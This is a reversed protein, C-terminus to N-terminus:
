LTESYEMKQYNFTVEERDSQLAMSKISANTLKLTMYTVEKGKVTHCFDIQVSTLNENSCNAQLLQPAAVASAITVKLPEHQQVGNAKASGASVPASLFAISTCLMFSNGRAAAQSPQFVGKSATQLRIYMKDQAGATHATSLAIALVFSVFLTFSKM